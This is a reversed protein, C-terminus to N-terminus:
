ETKRIPKPVLFRDRRGLSISGLLIFSIASTIFVSALGFWHGLSAGIIPAFLSAASQVATSFASIRGLLHQPTETTLIYGYPVFLATGVCGIIAFIVIWFLINGHAFGYCGVGVVLMFTGSVVRGISMFLLPNRKWRNFFGCLFAGTVSGAGLASSLLGYGTKDLGLSLSLPAFFSDYLFIIFMSISTIWIATSLIRNSRILSFGEKLEEWYSTSSSLNREKAAELAPLCFLLLFAAGYLVGEAMFVLQPHAVSLMGGGVLPAVIKTVNLVMQSISSAQALYPDPVVSRAAAQRAPEFISALSTKLFILLLLVWLGPAFFYGVAVGARVFTTMMLIKKKDWRDVWVSSLPGIVIYPLFMMVVAAANARLDLGWEFSILANVALLDLWNGFSSLVQVFFLTRFNKMKFISFTQLDKM